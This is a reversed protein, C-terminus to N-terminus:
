SHSSHYARTYAYSGYLLDLVGLGDSGHSAEKRGSDVPPLRLRRGHKQTALFQSCLTTTRPSVLSLLERERSRIKCDRKKPIKERQFQSETKMTFQRLAALLGTTCNTETQKQKEKQQSDPKKSSRRKTSIWGVSLDGVRWKQLM